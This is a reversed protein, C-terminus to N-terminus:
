AGLAHSLRRAPRQRLARVARPARTGPEHRPAGVAPLTKTLRRNVPLRDIIAGRLEADVEAADPDQSTSVVLEGPPYRRALEGHFRAIGGGVPPFDQALLLTTM